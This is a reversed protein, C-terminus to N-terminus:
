IDHITNKEVKQKKPPAAKAYQTISGVARINKAAKPVDAIVLLMAILSYKLKTIETIRVAPITKSSGITENKREFSPIRVGFNILLYRLCATTIINISAPTRVGPGSTVLWSSRPTGKNM